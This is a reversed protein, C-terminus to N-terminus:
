MGGGTSYGCVNSTVGRQSDASGGGSVSQTVSNAAVGARRMQAAVEMAREYQHARDCAAILANYVHVTPQVGASLMRERVGLAARWDGKFSHAAILGCFAYDRPAFGALLANM